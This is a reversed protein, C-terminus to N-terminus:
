EERVATSFMDHLCSGSDPVYLRYYVRDRSFLGPVNWREENTFSTPLPCSDMKMITRKNSRKARLRRCGRRFM